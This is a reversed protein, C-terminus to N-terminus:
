PQVIVKDVKFRGDEFVCIVEVVDYNKRVVDGDVVVRYLGIKMSGGGLWVLSSKRTLDERTHIAGEEGIKFPRFYDIGSEKELTARPTLTTTEVIEDYLPTLIAWSLGLYAFVILLLVSITFVVKKM